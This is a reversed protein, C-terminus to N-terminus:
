AGDNSNEEMEVTEGGEQFYPPCETDSAEDLYREIEAVRSDLYSGRYVAPPFDERQPVELLVRDGARLDSQPDSLGPDLVDLKVTAQSAAPKLPVEVAFTVVIRDAVDSPATSVVEGVAIFESCAINEAESLSQVFPQREDGGFDATFLILAGFTVLVAGLLLGAIVGGSLRKRPATGAEKGILNVARRLDEDEPEPEKETM